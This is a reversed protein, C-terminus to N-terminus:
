ALCWLGRAGPKSKLKDGMHKARSNVLMLSSFTKLTVELAGYFCEDQESLLGFTPILGFYYRTLNREPRIAM